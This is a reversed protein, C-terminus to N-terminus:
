KDFLNWPIKWDHTVEMDKTFEIYDPRDICWWETYGQPAPRYFTHENSLFPKYGWSKVLEIQKAINMENGKYTIRAM